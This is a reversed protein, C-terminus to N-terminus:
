CHGRVGSEAGHDIFVDGYVPPHADDRDAPTGAGRRLQANWALGKFGFYFRQADVFVAEFRASNVEVPSGNSVQTGALGPQDSFEATQAM